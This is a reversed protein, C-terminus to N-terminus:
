IRWGYRTQEIQNKADGTTFRCTPGPMPTDVNISGHDTTETQIKAGPRRATGLYATDLSGIPRGHGLALVACKGGAQNVWDEGSVVHGNGWVADRNGRRKGSPGLALGLRQQARRM